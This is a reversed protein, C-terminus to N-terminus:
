SEPEFFIPERVRDVFRRVKTMSPDDLAVFALGLGPPVDPDGTYARTWRVEALTLVPEAEGPLKMHVVLLTGTPVIEHTAVFVGGESLNTTMGTWFNHDSYIDINVYVNTRPVIRGDLREEDQDEDRFYRAADGM